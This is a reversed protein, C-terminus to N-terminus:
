GFSILIIEGRMFVATVRLWLFRQVTPARKASPSDPIHILACCLHHAVAFVTCQCSCTPKVSQNVPDFLLDCPVQQDLSYEKQPFTYQAWPGLYRVGPDQLAAPVDHINGACPQLGTKDRHRHTSTHVYTRAHTCALTHAHRRAHTHTHIVGVAVRHLSKENM